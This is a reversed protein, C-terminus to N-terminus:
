HYSVKRDIKIVRLKKRMRKQHWQDKLNRFFATLSGGGRSGNKKALLYGVLAGTLHAINSISSGSGMSSHQAGLLAYFEIGVMLYAFYRMKMPFVFFFLVVQDPIVVSVGMIAAFVIGSAGITPLSFTERDILGFLCVGVGTLLASAICFNRFRRRGWTSELLSGFMWFGLLNFVLHLFTGHLFFWTVLQYVHGSLVQAPVLGFINIIQQHLDPSGFPGQLAITQGIFVLACAISFIRVIGAFPPLYIM